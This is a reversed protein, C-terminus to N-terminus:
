RVTPLPHSPPPPFEAIVFLAVALAVVLWVVLVVVVLRRM